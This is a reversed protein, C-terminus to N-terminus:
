RRRRGGRHASRACVDDSDERKEFPEAAHLCGKPAFAGWSGATARRVRIPMTAFGRPSGGSCSGSGKGEDIGEALLIARACTGLVPMGGEIRVKLPALMGLDELLKAQVTSEGGPLILADFEKRLDGAERLETYRVGLKALVAEHEAFAGQLALVAVRPSEGRGTACM